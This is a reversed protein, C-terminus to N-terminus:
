FEMHLSAVGVEKQGGGSAKRIQVEWIAKLQPINSLTGMDLCAPYDITEGTLEAIVANNTVDYVRVDLSTADLIGCIVCISEPVGIDDSGHFMFANASYYSTSSTTVKTFPMDYLGQRDPTGAV